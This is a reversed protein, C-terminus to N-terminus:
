AYAEMGGDQLVDITPHRYVVTQALSEGDPRLATDDRVAGLREALAISRTNKPDIYSVLTDRGMEVYAYDRAAMAAEAAFGHGEAESTLMWGLELEPFHDPKLLAVQGIFKGDELRDVAWAGHGFLQWQAVDSCFSFWAQRRQLQGMYSARDSSFVDAYADFDDIRHARLRLRQTEITPALTM